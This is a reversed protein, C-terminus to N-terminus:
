APDWVDRFALWQDPHSTVHRQMMAALVEVGARIDAQRDGTHQLELPGRIHAQYHRPDGARDRWGEAMLLPVHATLALRVAGVPLRAPRGFLDTILGGGLSDFDCAVILHTGSRLATLIRRPEDAPIVELGHCTRLRNVIEHTGNHTLHEVVVAFREGPLHAGLHGLVEINGVHAFAIVAGTRSGSPNAALAARLGDISGSALLQDRTMSPITALEYYNWALNRFAARRLKAIDAPSPDLATKINEEFRRRMGRASIALVNGVWGAVTYGVTPPIVQAARDILKTVRV